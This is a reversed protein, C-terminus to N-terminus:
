IAGWTRRELLKKELEDSNLIRLSVDILPCQNKFAQVVIPLFATGASGCGGVSLKGRKLGKLEDLDEKIAETNALM